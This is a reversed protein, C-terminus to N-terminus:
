TNHEGQVELDAVFINKKRKKKAKRRHNIKMLPLEWNTLVKLKRIPWIPVGFDDKVDQDEIIEVYHTDLLSRWWKGAVVEYAHPRKNAIFEWGGINNRNMEKRLPGM